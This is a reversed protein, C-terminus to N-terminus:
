VKLDHCWQIGAGWGGTMKAILVGSGGALGKSSSVMSGTNSSKIRSLLSLITPYIAPSAPQQPKRAPFATMAQRVWSPRGRASWSRRSTQCRNHDNSSCNLSRLM